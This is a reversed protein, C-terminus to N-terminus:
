RLRHQKRSPGKVVDTFEVKEQAGVVPRYTMESLKLRYKVCPVFWGFGSLHESTYEWLNIFGKEDATVMPSINNVFSILTIPHRHAKFLEAVIVEGIKHITGDAAHVQPFSMVSGVNAFKLRLINGNNLGVMLFAQKGFLSSSPHFAVATAEQTSDKSNSFPGSTFVFDSPELTFLRILATSKFGINQEIPEFAKVDYPVSVTDGLSWVTVVGYENLSVVLSSDFSWHLQSVAANKGRSTRLIRPPYTVLDWILIDGQVTGLAILSDNPSVSSCAIGKYRRPLPLTSLDVANGMWFESEKNQFDVQEPLLNEDPIDSFPTIDHFYLVNGDFSDDEENVAMDTGQVSDELHFTQSHSWVDRKRQAEKKMQSLANNILSSHDDAQSQLDLSHLIIGDIMNRTQAEFAMIERATEKAAQHTVDAVISQEIDLSLQHIKDHRREDELEEFFREAITTLKHESTKRPRERVIFDLVEDIWSRVFERVFYFDELQWPEYSGIGMEGDYPKKLIDTREQNAQRLTQVKREFEPIRNKTREIAASLRSTSASSNRSTEPSPKSHIGGIENKLSLLRARELLIEERQKELELKRVLNDGKRQHAEEM